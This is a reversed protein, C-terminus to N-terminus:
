TALLGDVLVAELFGHQERAYNSIFQETYLAKAGCLYTAYEMQKAGDTIFEHHPRAPLLKPEGM